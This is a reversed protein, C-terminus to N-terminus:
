QDPEPSRAADQLSEGAHDLLALMRLMVAALFALGGGLEVVEEATQEVREAWITWTSPDISDMGVAAVALGIGVILAVRAGSDVRIVRWAVPLVALGILGVVLLLFDGPAIWPLFPVRIGRPALVNDRVREHIAFREDFALAAFGAGLMRWAAPRAPQLYAILMSAAAALVLVVSQVWTMPTQEPAIWEWWSPWRAVMLLLPVMIWVGALAVVVRM